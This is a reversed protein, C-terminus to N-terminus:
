CTYFKISKDTSSPRFIREVYTSVHLRHYLVILHNHRFYWQEIENTSDVCLTIYEMLNNAWVFHGFAFICCYM